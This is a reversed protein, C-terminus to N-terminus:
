AAHATRANREPLLAARKVEAAAMAELDEESLSWEPQPTVGQYMGLYDCSMIAHGTPAPITLEIHYDGPFPSGGNMMGSGMMSHAVIGAEDLNAALQAAQEYTM